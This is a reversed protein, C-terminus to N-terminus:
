QDDGVMRPDLPGVELHGGDVGPGRIDVPQDLEGCADPAVQAALPSRGQGGGALRPVQREKIELRDVQASADGHVEAPAERPQAVQVFAAVGSGHRDLDVAALDGRNAEARRTIQGRSAMDFPQPAVAPKTHNEGSLSGLGIGLTQATRKAGVVVLGTKRVARESLIEALTARM